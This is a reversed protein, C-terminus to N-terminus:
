SVMVEGAIASFRVVECKEVAWACMARRGVWSVRRWGVERWVLDTASVSCGVWARRYWSRM